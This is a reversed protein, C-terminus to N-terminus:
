QPWYKWIDRNSSVSATVSAVKARHSTSTILVGVDAGFGWTSDDIELQGDPQSNLVNNIAVDEKFIGYMANLGAGVSLFEFPKWSLSPMITMGVM